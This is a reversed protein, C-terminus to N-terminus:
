SRVLSLHVPAKNFWTALFFYFFLNDFFLSSWTALFFTSSWTALFFSSPCTALFFLLLGLQWFFLLLAPRCVACREGAGPQCVSVAAELLWVVGWVFRWKENKWLITLAKNGKMWHLHSLYRFQLCWGGSNLGLGLFKERMYGIPSRKGVSAM